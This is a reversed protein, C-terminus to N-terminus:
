QGIAMVMVRRMPEPWDCREVKMVAEAGDIINALEAYTITMEANALAQRYEEATLATPPAFQPDATTM